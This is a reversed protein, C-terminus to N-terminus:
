EKKATRTQRLMSCLLEPNIRQKDTEQRSQEERTTKRRGSENRLQLRRNGRAM